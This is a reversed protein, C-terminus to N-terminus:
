LQMSDRIHYANMVEANAKLSGDIPLAVINGGVGSTLTQIDFTIMADPNTISAAESGDESKAADQINQQMVEVFHAFSKIPVGQVHTVRRAYCHEYGRNIGHALVQAVVVLQQKDNSPFEDLHAQTLPRPALSYWEPGWENLLGLTLPTFVLGGFIFYKPKEQFLTNFTHHAVLPQDVIPVVSVNKVEGNRLITLEVPTGAPTSKVLHSFTLRERTRFEITGDNAVKYGNVAMIVDRRELIGQAASMPLVATILIGTNQQGASGSAQSGNTPSADNNGASNLKFYKRLTENQMENYIFGITCFGSHYDRCKLGARFREVTEGNELFKCSESQLFCRFFHAAVPIPVVYGINDANRLTQFAIGIVIGDCLAPGGSNGRNIAADLQIALLEDKGGYNTTDIRSVVGSTISIQDGGMPYGVVKVDQQLDPIGDFPGIHSLRELGTLPAGDAGNKKSKSDKPENNNNNNNTAASSRQNKKLPIFKTTDFALEELPITEGSDNEEVWFRDEPVHVLALDCEASMFMIIGIFKESDGHKRVEVFPAHAVVHCNTLLLKRRKDVVFGSGAQQQQQKKQWPILFNPLSTNAYIKITSRLVNEPLSKKSAGSATQGNEVVTPFDDLLTTTRTFFSRCQYQTTLATSSRLPLIENKAGGCFSQALLATSNVPRVKNAVFWFTRRM